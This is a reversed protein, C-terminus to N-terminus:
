EQTLNDCGLESMKLYAASFSDFFREQDRAFIGVLDNYESDQLLALDSPTRIFESKSDILEEYYNNDFVFPNRSWRAPKNSEDNGFMGLTRSGFLAVTEEASFGLQSYKQKIESLTSDTSPLDTNEPLRSDDEVDKRGIKVNIYPGGCYEVASAGGIQILDSVSLMATIHNGYEETFSKTLTFTSSLGKNREMKAFKRIKWNACPGGTRRVPNFSLADMMAVRLSQPM